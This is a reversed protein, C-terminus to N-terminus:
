NTPLTLHTYSVSISSRLLPFTIHWFRKWKNAGLVSAVEEKEVDLQSWAAGVVRVFVSTNYFVHALLIVALTNMLQIPPESLKFIQMFLLNFWGKNGILSNFAAAVVVTPLIFPLTVVTRFFTKGKFEFHSFVYAIPFGVLITCLTSLTAQFITFGLPEAIKRLLGDQLLSGELAQAARQFVVGLPLVYFALLYLVPIVGILWLLQRETRTKM